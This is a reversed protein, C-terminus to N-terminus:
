HVSIIRRYTKSFRLFYNVVKSILIDLGTVAVILLLFWVGIHLGYIEIYGVTFLGYPSAVELTASIFSYGILHKIKMWRVLIVLAVMPAIESFLPLNLLRVFLDIGLQMGVFAYSKTNSM